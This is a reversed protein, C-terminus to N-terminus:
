RETPARQLGAISQLVRYALRSRARARRAGPFILFDLLRLM